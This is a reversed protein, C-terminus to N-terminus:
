ICTTGCIRNDATVTGSYPATWSNRYYLDINLPKDGDHNIDLINLLYLHHQTPDMGTNAPDLCWINPHIVLVYNVSNLDGVYSTAHNGLRNKMYNLNEDSMFYESDFKKMPTYEQEYTSNNVHSGYTGFLSADGKSYEDYYFWSSEGHLEDGYYCNYDGTSYDWSGWYDYYYDALTHYNLPRGNNWNGGYAYIHNSIALAAIFIIIAIITKKILKFKNM